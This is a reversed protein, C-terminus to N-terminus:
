PAGDDAYERSWWARALRWGRDISRPSRELMAAIEDISFGGFFKLEVIRALEQDVQALRELGENVALIEDSRDVAECWDSDLTVRQLGGGRKDASRARARDVLVYRMARAAVRRFHQESHWREGAPTTDGALRVWAEHILDTPQMTAAARDHRLLRAAVDRLEAYVLPLLEDAARESDDEATRRDDDVRGWSLGIQRDPAQCSITM